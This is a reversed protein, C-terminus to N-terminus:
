FIYKVDGAASFELAATYYPLVVLDVNAVPIDYAKTIPNYLNGNVLDWQLQLGTSVLNIGNMMVYETMGQQEFKQGFPIHFYGSVTTPVAGANTTYGSTTGASAAANLATVLPLEYYGPVDSYITDMFLNSGVGPFRQLIVGQNQVVLNEPSAFAQKNAAGRVKFALYVGRLQGDMFGVINAASGSLPVTIQNQYFKIPHMYRQSGSLKLMHSNDLMFLQRSQVLAQDLQTIQSIFNNIYPAAAGSVTSPNATFISSASKLTIALTIQGTMLHTPLPCGLEIGSASTLGLISLPVFAWLSQGAFSGASVTQASWSRGSMAMGGFGTMLQNAEGVNSADQLAAARLVDGSFTYDSSGSCRVIVSEILDFGWGAGVSLNDYLNNGATVVSDAPLKFACWLKDLAQQPSITIISTSGFAKTNFDYKANTSQYTSVESKKITDSSYYFLNIKKGPIEELVTSSKSALM